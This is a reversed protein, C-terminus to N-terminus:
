WSASTSCASCWRRLRELTWFGPSDCVFVETIGPPSSRQMCEAVRDFSEIPVKLKDGPKCVM